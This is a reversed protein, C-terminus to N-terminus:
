KFKENKSLESPLKNNYYLYDSFMNCKNVLKVVTESLNNKNYISTCIPLTICNKCPSVSENKFDPKPNVEFKRAPLYEIGDVMAKILRHWGDMIYGDDRLIIPFKLNANTVRKYHICYDRINSLKWQLIEDISISNVKFKIIPLSKSEKILTSTKWINGEEDIFCNRFKMIDGKHTFM